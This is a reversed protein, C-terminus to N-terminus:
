KRPTKLDPEAFGFAGLTFREKVVTTEPLELQVEYDMTGTTLKKNDSPLFTIHVRSPVYEETSPFSFSMEHTVTEKSRLMEVVKASELAWHRRPNLVLQGSKFIRKREVPPQKADDSTVVFDIRIRGDDMHSVREVSFGKDRVLEILPRGLLTVPSVNDLTGQFLWMGMRNPQTESNYYIQQQQWPTDQADRTLRFGYNENICHLQLPLFPADPDTVRSLLEASRCDGSQLYRITGREFTRKGDVALKSEITLTGQLRDFLKTYEAWGLQAAQLIQADKDEPFARSMGVPLVVTSMVLVLAVGLRSIKHKMSHNLIVEIRRELICGGFPTGAMAPWREEGTLYEVAKLLTQGYIRRSDPLAWVVLTDCCEEEARHLRRSAWWAIPNWWNLSLVCVDFFRVWHDRRRIHGLEHALVSNVQDRNLEALLRTPLVVMPNKMGPTVFPCVHAATVRLPPCTALGIQRALQEANKVLILDPAQSGALLPLLGL